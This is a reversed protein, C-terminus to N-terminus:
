RRAAYRQQGVILVAIVLLASILMWNPGGSFVVEHMIRGPILTFAGAGVIGGLYIGIVTAKHARINHARAASIARWIGILVFISLLHIASFGHFTDIQHIFFSSLATVAMLMMWIKGFFRHGPTGKRNVLIFAGLIAAPIVTAVHIQVAAPADLLPQFTM